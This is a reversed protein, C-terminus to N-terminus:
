LANKEVLYIEKDTLEYLEYVLQDIQRDNVEIQRQLITKEHQTQAVSLRKNLDLMQEVLAVM